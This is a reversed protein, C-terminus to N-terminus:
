GLDRAQHKKHNLYPIFVLSAQVKALAASICNLLINVTHLVARTLGPHEKVEITKYNDQAM